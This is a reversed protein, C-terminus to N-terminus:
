VGGPLISTCTAVPHLGPQEGGGCAWLRGGFPALQFGHRPSRMRTATWAGNAFLALQDVIRTEGPDEGGAVVVWGGLEGAGAGSTPAPLPPLSSWGGPGLCDVRDSNPSRGGAVCATDHLAFPAVHNRPVPLAAVDRWRAAQPDYFEAAAVNVAAIGGIAYLGGGSAVLGLAGRAHHLPDLDVWREGELRLVRASPIGGNFGGAIVVAGGLVAASPHDLGVPLPPGAGWARGDFVWTEPRSGGAADFGGVVYLRGGTAAAATEERAVPLAPEDRQMEAPPTPTPTPIPGRGAVATATTANGPSATATSGRGPAPQSCASVLGLVLVAAALRTM